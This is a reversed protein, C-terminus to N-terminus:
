YFVQEIRNINSKTKVWIEFKTMQLPLITQNGMMWHISGLKVQHKHPWSNDTHQNYPM